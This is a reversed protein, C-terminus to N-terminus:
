IKSKHITKLLDRANLADLIRFNLLNRFDFMAPTFHSAGGKRRLENIIAKVNKREINKIMGTKFRDPRYITWAEHPYYTSRCENTNQNLLMEQFMSFDLDYFKQPITTDGWLTLKKNYPALKPPMVVKPTEILETDKKSAFYETCGISVIEFSKAFEELVGQEEAFRSLIDLFSTMGKGTEVYDTIVTRKGTKKFNEVISKPDVKNDKLYKKYVKEEAETPTCQKIEKVGDIPDPKFWYQSFAIFKYDPIGDKMWLAANLFWKPSRGLCVIPQDKYKSYIKAAKIFEDMNKEDLLPIRKESIDFLENTYKQKSFQVCKKRFFRKREPSMCQYEEFDIHPIKRNPDFWEGFHIDTEYKFGVPINTYTTPTINQLNKSPPCKTRNNIVNNTNTIRYSLNGSVLM